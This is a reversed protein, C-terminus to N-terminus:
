GGAARDDGGALYYRIESEVEDRFPVLLFGLEMFVRIEHADVEIRGHAMPHRFRLTHDDWQYHIGYRNEMKRAIREAAAMAQKRSLGHRRSIEIM